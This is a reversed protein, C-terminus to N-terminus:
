SILFFNLFISLYLVIIMINMREMSWKDISWKDISWKDISKVGIFIWFTFKRLKAQNKVKLYYHM